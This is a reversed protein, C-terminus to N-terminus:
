EEYDSSEGYEPMMFFQQPNQPFAAPQPSQYYSPQGPGQAYPYAPAAAPYPSFSSPQQQPYPSYYGPATSGYMPQYTQVPWGYCPMIPVPYCGGAMQQPSVMMPEEPPQVNPPMNMNPSVNPSVNPQLNPSANPQINASSAPPAPPGWEHSEISEQVGPFPHSGSEGYFPAVPQSFSAAMPAVPAQPYYFGYGPMVPTVPICGQEQPPLYAPMQYTPQQPQAIPVYPITPLEPPQDHQDYSPHEQNESPEIDTDPKMINPLINDPKPPIPPLGPIQNPYNVNSQPSISPNAQFPTKHDHKEAAQNMGINSKPSEYSPQKPLEKPINATPAKPAEKPKKEIPATPKPKPVENIPIEQAPPNINVNPAIEAEFNFSAFPKANSFPHEQIPEEKKPYEKKPHEKNPYEKKPYEKKPYEKNPAEKKVPVGATPIKIKMGPMILDPNSLQGNLHKLQEFDVGYKQAIKWLTDGKQVIHIKM